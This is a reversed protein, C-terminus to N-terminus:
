EGTLRHPRRHRKKSATYSPVRIGGQFSLMSAINIIKGGGHPIMHRAAAQSLFFVAKLNV